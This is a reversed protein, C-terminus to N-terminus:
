HETTYVKAGVSTATPARTGTPPATIAPPPSANPTSTTEPGPPGSVRTVDASPAGGSGDNTTEAVPQTDSAGCGCGGSPCSSHLMKTEVARSQRVVKAIRRAFADYRYEGM